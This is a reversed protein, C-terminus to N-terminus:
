GVFIDQISLLPYNGLGIGLLLPHLMNLQIGIWGNTGTVLRIYAMQLVVEFSDIMLTMILPLAIFVVTTSLLSDLIPNTSARIGM